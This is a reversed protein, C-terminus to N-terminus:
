AFLGALFPSDNDGGSQQSGTSQRRNSNMKKQANLEQTLRENEARLQAAQHREWAANLGIHENNVIDWVEQPVDASGRIEPHAAKFANVDSLVTQQRASQQARQTQSRQMQERLLAEAQQSVRQQRLNGEALKRMAASETNPFDKQLRNM